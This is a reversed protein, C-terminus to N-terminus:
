KERGKRVLDMHCIPCQGPGPRQVEPHMTCTWVEKPHGPHSGDENAASGQSARAPPEKPSTMGPMGPMDRSPPRNGSSTGTPVSNGGSMGPMDKMEGKPSPLSKPGTSGWEVREVPTNPQLGEFGAWIVEQGARLGDLIETYNGDSKGTTVAQKEAVLNGSRSRPVLDMKCIPCKGPGPMSVEPHMTCTWDKSQNATGADRLVWVYSGGQLDAQVAGSRVAVTASVAEDVLAVEAFSGAKFAGSANDLIAEIRFTRTAENVSPFIATVAAHSERGGFKVKLRQGLNVSAALSQPLEAQIRMRDVAKLRLIVQGAMVSTGPAVLRDSVIGASLARLDRFGAMAEFGAAGSVGAQFEQQRARAEAIAKLKAQKAADADAGAAAFMSEAARVESEAAKRKREAVDARRRASESKSLTASVRAVAMDREKQAMQLEDLSIAGSGQLKRQRLLNAEQYKADAKAEELESDAMKAEALMQDREASMAGSEANARAISSQAASKEALARRYMAQAIQQERAAATSMSLKSGAMKRAESAQAVYEPADLVGLLQGAKVRDGPYALLRVLRGPIRAVVEEDAFSQVTAPFWTTGALLRLAAAEAAVPQVGPPPKSTTMDMGQAETITMAGPARQTSVIWRIAVVAAVVLAVSSITQITFLKKWSPQNTRTSM